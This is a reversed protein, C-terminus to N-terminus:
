YLVRMKLGKNKRKKNIKKRVHLVKSWDVPLVLVFGIVRRYLLRDANLGVLEGSIRGGAVQPKM